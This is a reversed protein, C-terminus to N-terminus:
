LAIVQQRHLRTIKVLMSFFVNLIIVLLFLFLFTGLIEGNFPLGKLLGYVSMTAVTLAVALLGIEQWLRLASISRSHRLWHVFISIPAFVLLFIVPLAWWNLMYAIDITPGGRAAIAEVERLQFQFWIRNPIECFCGFIFGDIAGLLMALSYQLM